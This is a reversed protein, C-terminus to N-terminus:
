RLTNGNKKLYKIFVSYILVQQGKIDFDVTIIGVVKKQM